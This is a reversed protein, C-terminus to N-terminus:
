ALRRIPEGALVEAALGAPKPTAAAAGERARALLRERLPEVGPLARFPLLWSYLSQVAYVKAPVAAGAASSVARTRRERIARVLDGVTEGPFVTVHGGLQGPALHADSGGLTALRYRAAARELARSRWGVLPFRTEIADPLLGEAALGALQRKWLVPHPHVLVVVSGPIGRAWRVLEPLRTGPKPLVSPLDAPATEPFLVVLHVIRGRATLEVGAIV